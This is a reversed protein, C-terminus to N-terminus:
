LKKRMYLSSSKAECLFAFGLKTYSSIATLNAKDVELRIETFGKKRVYEEVCNYMCTFLGKRRYLPSVYVHSIYAYGIDHCNSYFAIMGVINSNDRTICFEAYTHLKTAFATRWENDKLSAFTSQAQESMSKALEEYSIAEIQCTIM